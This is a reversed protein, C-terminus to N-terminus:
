MVDGSKMDIVGPGYAIGDKIHFPKATAAGQPYVTDVHGVLMLRLHGKGTRRAVMNNGYTASDHLTVSFGINSFWQKLYSMIANVGDIQGSGSDINILIELRQLLENQYSQLRPLYIQSFSHM